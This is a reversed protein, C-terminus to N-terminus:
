FKHFFCLFIGLVFKNSTFLNLTGKGLTEEFKLVLISFFPVPIGILSYLKSFKSNVFINSISSVYLKLRYLAM